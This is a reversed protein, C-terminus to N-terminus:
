NIDVYFFILDMIKIIPLRCDMVGTDMYSFRVFCYNLCGFELWSLAELCHVGNDIDLPM